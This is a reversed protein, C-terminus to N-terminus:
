ELLTLSFANAVVEFVSRLVLARPGRTLAFRQRVAENWLEVCM